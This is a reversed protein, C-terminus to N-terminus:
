KILLPDMKPVINNIDLLGKKLMTGRKSSNNANYTHSIKEIFKSAKKPKAELAGVNTEKKKNGMNLIKRSLLDNTSQTV